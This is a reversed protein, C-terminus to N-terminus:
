GCVHTFTAEEPAPRCRRAIDSPLPPLGRMDWPAGPAWGPVGSVLGRGSRLFVSVVERASRRDDDAWGKWRAAHAMLASAAQRADDADGKAITGTALGDRIVGARNGFLAQLEQELGDWLARTRLRPDEQAESSEGTRMTTWFNLAGTDEFPQEFQHWWNAPLFLVDGPAIVAETVPVGELADADLDVNRMASGALPHDNPYRGLAEVHGPEVLVAKKRGLFPVYFNDTSDYHLPMVVGRMGVWIKGHAFGAFGNPVWRAAAELAEATAGMDAALQPPTLWEPAADGFFVDHLYHLQQEQQQQQQQQSWASRRETTATRERRQQRQQRQRRLTAVFGAFTDKYLRTRPRFPYPFGRRAAERRPEYYRCCREKDDAGGGTQDNDAMAVTVVPPNAHAAFAEELYALSWNAAAPTVLNTIVVPERRAILARAETLPLRPVESRSAIADDRRRAAHPPTQTLRGAVTIAVATFVVAAAVIMKSSPSLPKQLYRRAEQRAQAVSTKSYAARAKKAKKAEKDKLKSSFRGVTRRPM